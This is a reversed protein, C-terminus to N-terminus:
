QELAFLHVRLAILRVNDSTHSWQSDNQTEEKESFCFSSDPLMAGRPTTNASTEARVCLASNSCLEPTDVQDRDLHQGCIDMVGQRSLRLTASLYATSFVHRNRKEYV